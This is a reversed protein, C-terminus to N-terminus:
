RCIPLAILILDILVENIITTRGEDVKQSETEFCLEAVPIGTRINVAKRHFKSTQAPFFLWTMSLKLKLFTPCRLHSSNGAPETEASLRVM